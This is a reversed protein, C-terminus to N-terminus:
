VQRTSPSRPTRLLDLAADRRRWEDQAAVVTTERFRLRDGPMLQAALPLDCRAVAAIVPYGGATQGDAMLLIPKGSAPLQVCGMALGFSVLEPGDIALEPGELRYGMRDADRSVTWAEDFLARRHKASLRAVHPGAITLLEPHDDYPPRLPGPLARGAVLPRPAPGAAPLVDGAKLPRGHVGGRGALLYTAVSGLWRDGTLGGSVAVYARAGWSRGAFELRDGPAVFVGEWTPMPQGNLTARFDAGTVAVLCGALVTLAPGSLACELGACGERNGVLLNAAALAFRDMAGGPPVGAARKGPRGLDQITALMGPQEVRLVGVPETPSASEIM